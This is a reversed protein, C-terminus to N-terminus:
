RRQGKVLTSESLRLYAAIRADDFGHEQFTAIGPTDSTSCSDLPGLDHCVPRGDGCHSLLLDDVFVAEGVHRYGLTQALVTMQLLHARTFAYCRNLIDVECDIRSIGGGLRLRAGSFSHIEGFVGHVRSPDRRLADILADIQARALFLDDDPCLFTDFSQQLAIEFRKACISPQAQQVLDVKPEDLVPGLWDRLDIEPNNNSVIVKEVAASECLPLLVRTM